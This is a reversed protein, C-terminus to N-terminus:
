EASEGPLLRSRVGLADLARVGPPMVGEGCAKDVPGEQREFVAVNLGRRATEIAVALGAPGGGVVAVDLLRKDVSAGRFSAPGKAFPMPMGRASHGSRKAFVFSSCLPM